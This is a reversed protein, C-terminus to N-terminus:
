VCESIREEGGFRSTLSAIEESDSAPEFENNTQVLLFDKCEEPSTKFINQLRCLLYCEM